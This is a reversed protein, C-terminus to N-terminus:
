HWDNAPDKAGELPLDLQKRRAIFDRLATEMTATIGNRLETGANILTAEILTPLEYAMQEGIARAMDAALEEIRVEVAAISDAELPEPVEPPEEHPTDAPIDEPVIETLVPIDEEDVTNPVTDIELSEDRKTALFSRRRRSPLAPNDPFNDQGSM